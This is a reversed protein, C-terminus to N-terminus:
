ARRCVWESDTENGDATSKKHKRMFLCAAKHMKWDAKQHAACCYYTSQCGNCRLLNASPGKSGHTAGCHNCALENGAADLQPKAVDPSAQAVVDDILSRAATTQVTSTLSAKTTSNPAAAESAQSTDAQADVKQADQDQHQASSKKKKKKRKKNKRKTQNSTTPADGSESPQDGGSTTTSKVVTDAGSVASTADTEGEQAGAAFISFLGSTSLPIFSPYLAANHGSSVDFARM